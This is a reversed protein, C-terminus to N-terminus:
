KESGSFQVQLYGWFALAQLIDNFVYLEFGSVLSTFNPLQM